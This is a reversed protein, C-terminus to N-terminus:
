DIKLSSCNNLIKIAKQIMNCSHLAIVLILKTTKPTKKSPRKTANFLMVINGLKM